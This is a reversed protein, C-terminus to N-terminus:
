RIDNIRSNDSGLWLGEFFHSWLSLQHILFFLFDCTYTSFPSPQFFISRCASFLPLELVKIVIWLVLPVNQTRQSLFRMFGYDARM